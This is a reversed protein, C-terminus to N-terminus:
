DDLRHAAAPHRDMLRTNEVVDGDIFKYGPFAVEVAVADRAQARRAILDVAVGFLLRRSTKSTPAVSSSRRSPMVCARGFHSRPSRATSDRRRRLGDCRVDEIRPPAERVPQHRPPRM